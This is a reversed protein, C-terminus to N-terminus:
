SADKHLPGVLVPITAIGPVLYRYTGGATLLFQFSVSLMDYM